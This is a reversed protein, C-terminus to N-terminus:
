KIKDFAWSLYILHFRLAAHSGAEAMTVGHREYYARSICQRDPAVQARGDDGEGAPATM